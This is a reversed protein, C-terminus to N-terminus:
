PQEQLRRSPPKPSGRLSFERTIFERTIEYDPFEAKMAALLERCRSIKSSSMKKLDGAALSQEVSLVSYGVQHIRLQYLRANMTRATEVEAKPVLLVDIPRLELPFGPNNLGVVNESHYDLLFLGRPNDAMRVFLSLFANEEKATRLDPRPQIRHGSLHEVILGIETYANDELGHRVLGLYKVKPGKYHELRRLQDIKDYLTAAVDDAMSGNIVQPALTRLFARDTSQDGKPLLLGLGLYPSPLRTYSYFKGEASKLHKLSDNYIVFTPIQMAVSLDEVLVGQARSLKPILCLGLTFGLVLVRSKLFNNASLM